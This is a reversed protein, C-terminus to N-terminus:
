SINIRMSNSLGFKTWFWKPVTGSIGGKSIDLYRFNNQKELWKPFLPGLKCSRLEISDLQLTSAWNQTVELTLSNDSLILSKLKTMNYFHSDTLVGKLSNSM